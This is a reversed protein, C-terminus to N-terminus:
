GCSELEYKSQNASKLKQSIQGPAVKAHLHPRWTAVADRPIRVLHGLTGFLIRNSSLTLLGVGRVVRIERIFTL